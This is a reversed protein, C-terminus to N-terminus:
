NKREFVLEVKRKKINAPVFEKEAFYMRNNMFSLAYIKLPDNTSRDNIYLMGNKLPFSIGNPLEVVMHRTDGHMTFTYATFSQKEQVTNTKISFPFSVVRGETIYTVNLSDNDTNIPPTSIYKDVVQNPTLKLENPMNMRYIFKMKENEGALTSEFYETKFPYLLERNSAIQFNDIHINQVNNSRNGFALKFLSLYRKDIRYPNFDEYIEVGNNIFSTESGDFGFSTNMIENQYIQEKFTSAVFGSIDGNLQMNDLTEYRKLLRNLKSRESSSLSNKEKTIYTYYATHQKEYGGDRSLSKYAELNLGKADIPEISLTFDAGIARDSSAPNFEVNSYTYITTKTLKKTACSAILITLLLLFPTQKILAPM